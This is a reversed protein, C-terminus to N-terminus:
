QSAGANIEDVCRQAEALADADTYPPFNPEPKFPQDRFVVGDELLQFGGPILAFSIM